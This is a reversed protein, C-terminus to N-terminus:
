GLVLGRVQAPSAGLAMRVGIERQRQAVGHALVGYVGALALLVALLAMALLLGARFRDPAEAQALRAAMTQVDYLPMEPNVSAMTARLQPMLAEPDGRARVVLSMDGTPAQMVPEYIVWAPPDNLIPGPVDGAIGVIRATILQVSGWQLSHQLANGGPFFHRAFSQSVIVVRQNQPTDADTFGRGQVPIGMARFYGPLVRGLGAQPRDSVRTAPGRPDGPALFHLMLHPDGLPLESIMGSAEVGPLAAVRDNFQQLYIQNKHLEDLSAFLLSVRCTLVQHSDFGPDVLLVRRLNQLLLGALALLVVAAAVEAAAVAALFRHRGSNNQSSARHLSRGPRPWLLEWAPALGFWLATLLTAAATFGLVRPDLTVSALSPLGPAQSRRLLPLVLWALLWGLGGGVLALVLAELLLQALLRTHRAGLAARLAMERWRSTSGALLLNAVNACAIALVLVAALMMMWLTARYAGSVEQNLPLLLAGQDADTDPYTQALRAAVANLQQQAQASGAGPRLRGFVQLYRFGRAQLDAPNFTLAAWFDVKQPYAFGPPMVGVVTFSATDVD